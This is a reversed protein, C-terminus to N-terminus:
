PSAEAAVRIVYTLNPEPGEPGFVIPGGGHVSGRAGEYAGTGELITGTALQLARSGDPSFIFAIRMAAVISGGSLELKMTAIEVFGRSTPLIESNCLTAQGLPRGTLSSLAVISGGAACEDTSDFFTPPSVIRVVLVRQGASRDATGAFAASATFLAIALATGVLRITM